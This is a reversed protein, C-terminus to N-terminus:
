RLCERKCKRNYKRILGASADVAGDYEGKSPYADHYVHSPKPLGGSWPQFGAHGRAYSDQVAHLARALGSCACRKWQQDVFDNFERRASQPTVRSDTGDRMAHWASNEPAQSGPLWDALAVDQPLTPCAIPELSMAERTVRNHTHSTFLGTPDTNSAPDNLAYAYTNLGGNLGIPDSSIYRGTAPDYYRFGNYHLGSEADYYQGPFRLHYSFAGASQPNEEPRNEGFPSANWHWMVSNDAPRTVKRPANLVNTHVYYIDVGTGARPRLTAVPIDDMWVTEQILAGSGTYEGLLHGSEDYVFQTMAAGAAKAVRQSLANYTHRTTTAGTLSVPRSPNAEATVSGSVDYGYANSRTGSIDLLRNSTPSVNLANTFRPTGYDSHSQRNGNADLELSFLHGAGNAGVLWDRRDRFYAWSQSPDSPDDVGTLRSAGDYYLDHREGASELRTVLMDQSYTRVTSTGNGWTWRNVPGFPQYRVGSLLPTGNVALSAIRGQAYGYQVTQGSPTVISSLRGGSYTYSVTRATGGVTQIKRTVRGLSDYSWSLTQSADSARTLRGVGNTGADYTFAVAHGPYVLTTLRNLADYRYTGTVGRADTRSELNGVADYAHTTTGTDPSTQSILEGFGNYGYSTVLNRPDTVSVLNDRADHAFRTVGSGPDTIQRVRNLEDFQRAVNRGFPANVATENGNADYTYLTTAEPTGAVGVQKSLQNLSNFVRSRTWALVSAPDYAREATRNGMADLGYVVRNGAGDAIQTLRHAKDYTYEIYSGDPLTVKRLMGAPWYTYRTTEGAVRQSTLRQRLDYALTTMVSNADRISLPQGHANYSEYTTTHGLANTVTHLQGCAGGTNCQYYTYVTVDAVDTRPGEEKLLQGVTNYSYKWKRKVYPTVTTDSVTRTLANGVADYTFAVTRGPEAISVPLRLTEHWKTRIIRANPTDAAEIRRTELNRALDYAYETRIGNFDRTSSVNGNADYARTAFSGCAACPGGSISTVRYVGGASSMRFTRTQGLPDVITTIPEQSLAYGSKYKFSHREAGGARESSQVRGDSDYNFSAFTHNSEDVISALRKWGGATVYTYTRTKQDPYTVSTLLETGEAHAGSYGYSTIEGAPNTLSQIRGSSDLTLTLSRGFGDVIRVRSAEHAVTTVFGARTTISTLVGASSYTEVDASALTLRWSGDSRRTIRAAAGNGGHNHIERGATDFLWLEGDPRVVTSAVGLGLPEAYVRGGYSHGWLNTFGGTRKGLAAYGPVYYRGGNYYRKFELPNAGGSSYDLEEELAIGSLPSVPDGLPCTDDLRPRCIFRLPASLFDYVYGPPCESHREPYAYNLNTNVGDVTVEAISCWPSQTPGTPSELRNGEPACPPTNFRAQVNTPMINSGSTGYDLCSDLQYRVTSTGRRNLKEVLDRAAAEYSDASACLTDWSVYWPGTVPSVALQSQGQVTASTAFMLVMLGALWNARSM